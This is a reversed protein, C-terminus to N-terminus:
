PNMDESIKPELALRKIIKYKNDDETDLVSISHLSILDSPLSYERTNKTITQKSVKLDHETSSQIAMIADKVFGIVLNTDRSNAREMVELITM